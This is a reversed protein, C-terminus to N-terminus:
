NSQRAYLNRLAPRDLTVNGRGGELAISAKDLTEYLTTWPINSMNETSSHESVASM